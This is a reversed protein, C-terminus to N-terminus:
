RRLLCTVIVSDVAERLPFNRRDEMGFKSFATIRLELQYQGYDAKPDKYAAFCLYFARYYLTLIIDAASGESLGSEASLLLVLM